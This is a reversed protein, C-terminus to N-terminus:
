KNVCGQSDVTYTGQSTNVTVNAHISECFFIVGLAILFIKNM